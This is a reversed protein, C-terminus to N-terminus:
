WELHRHAWQFQVSHQQAEQQWIQSGLVAVFLCTCTAFGSALLRLPNILMSVHSNREKLLTVTIRCILACCCRQLASRGPSNPLTCDRIYSCQSLVNCGFSRVREECEMLTPTESVCSLQAASAMLLICGASCSGRCNPDSSVCTPAAKRLGLSGGAARPALKGAYGTGLGVEAVAQARTCWRLWSLLRGRCCVLVM